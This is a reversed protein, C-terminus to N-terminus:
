FATYDLGYVMAAVLSLLLGLGCFTTITKFEEAGDASRVTSSAIRAEADM